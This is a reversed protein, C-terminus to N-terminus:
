ALYIPAIFPPWGMRSCTSHVFERFYPWTNLPLQRRKFLSFLEDNMPMKSSYNLLFAVSIKAKIDKEEEMFTAHYSHVVEIAEEKNTFEAKMRSKVITKEPFYSYDLNDLKASILRIDEIDIQKIFENYEEILKRVTKKM